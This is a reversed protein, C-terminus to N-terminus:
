HKQHADKMASHIGEHRDKADNYKKSGRIEIASTESTKSFGSVKNGKDDEYGSIIDWGSVKNGYSDTAGKTLDYDSIIVNGDKDTIKVHSDTIAKELSSRYAELQADYGEGGLASNDIYEKVLAEERDHFEKQMDAWQESNIIESELKAADKELKNADFANGRRRAEAAQARLARAESANKDANKLQQDAIMRDAQIQQWKSNKKSLESTAREKMKDAAAKVDDFRKARNEMVEYSTSAGMVNRARDVGMGLIGKYGGTAARVDMRRAIRGGSQLGSSFGKVGQAKGGRFAGTIGGTVFGGTASALSRVVGKDLSRATTLASGFGAVGGAALGALGGTLGMFAANGGLSKFPNLSLEGSMKVGLAKELLEPIKKAVQFAGLVLFIYVFINMAGNDKGPFEEYYLSNTFMKATIIKVMQIVLYVVALRLFLSLFTTLCEKGWEKLKDNGSSSTPDISTIFAIPSLIQLFMLKIARGAIDICFSLLLFVLYGGCITSAIPLYNIASTTNDGDNVKMYLLSGFAGFSREDYLSDKKFFQDITVGSAQVSEDKDMAEAFVDLCTTGSDDEALAMDTSGIVNKLPNENTPRCAELDGTPNITFFPSFVLFQVDISASELNSVGDDEMGLILNPLVNSNLIIGQLEYMKGFFWPTLILLVLAILVRKVLNTFGKAQDTFSNPDVIYGIISFALKFLMFVGVLIYVRNMLASIADNNTYLDVNALSVILGYLRPIFSYVIHDIAFCISHFANGIIEGAADKATDVWGDWFMLINFM